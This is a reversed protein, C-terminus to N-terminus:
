GLERLGSVLTDVQDGSNFVSLSIRIGNLGHTSMSRVLWDRVEM